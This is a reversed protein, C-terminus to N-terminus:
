TAAVTIGSAITNLLEWKVYGVHNDSSGAAKTIAITIQFTNVAGVAGTVASVTSATTVTTAGAVAQKASGYATSILAVAAVGATRMVIFDYSIAHVAEGAGITGGAGLAGISTIRLLGAVQANPVTVTLVNTVTTDTCGTKVVFGSRDSLAAGASFFPQLGIPVDVDAVGNWYKMTGTTPDYLVPATASPM